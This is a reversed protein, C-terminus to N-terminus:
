RTSIELRGASPVKVHVTFCFPGVSEIVYINWDAAELRKLPNSSAPRFPMFTSRATGSPAFHREYRMDRGTREAEYAERESIM